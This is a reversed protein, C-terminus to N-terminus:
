GLDLELGCDRLVQDLTDDLGDLGGSPGPLDAVALNKDEIQFLDNSNSGTFGTLVRKSRENGENRSWFVLPNRSMFRVKEVSSSAATRPRPASKGATACSLAGAVADVVAVVGAAAAAGASSALGASAATALASAAGSAGAASVAAGGGTGLLPSVAQIITAVTRTIRM